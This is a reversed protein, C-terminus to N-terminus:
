CVSAESHGAACGKAAGSSRVGGYQRPLAAAVGAPDVKQELGPRTELPRSPDLRLYIFAHTRNRFETLTEQIAM